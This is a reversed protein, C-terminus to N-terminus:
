YKALVDKAIFTKNGFGEEKANVEIKGSNKYTVTGTSVSNSLTESEYAEFKYNINPLSELSGLEVVLESITIYDINDYTSNRNEQIKFKAAYVGDRVKYVTLNNSGDAKEEYKKVLRAVQTVAFEKNFKNKIAMSTYDEIKQKRINEEEQEKKIKEEDRKAQEKLQEEQQYTLIKQNTDKGLKDLSLYAKKFLKESIDKVAQSLVKSYEDKETANLRTIDAKDRENVVVKIKDNNLKILQSTYSKLANDADEIKNIDRKKLAEEYTQLLDFYNEENPNDLTTYYLNDYTDKLRSLEQNYTKIQEETKMNKYVNISIISILLIVLAIVTYIITPKSYFKKNKLSNSGKHQLNIEQNEM